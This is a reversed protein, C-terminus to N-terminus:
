LVVTFPDASILSHKSVWMMIPFSQFLFLKGTLSMHTLLIFYELILQCLLRFVINSNIMIVNVSSSSINYTLHVWYYNNFCCVNRISRLAKKVHPDCVYTHGTDLILGNRKESFNYKLFFRGSM